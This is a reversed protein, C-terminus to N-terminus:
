AGKLKSIVEGESEAGLKGIWVDVITGTRDLLILTPTSSLKTLGAADASLVVEAMLGNSQLYAKNASIDEGAAVWVKKVDAVEQLRRYFALSETCYRCSSRTGILLTPGAVSLGNIAIREGPRYAPVASIDQRPVFRQIVTLVAALAILIVAINAFRNLWKDM